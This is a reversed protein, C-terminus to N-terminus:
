EGKDIDPYITIHDVSVYLICRYNLGMKKYKKGIEWEVEGTIYVDALPFNDNIKKFLNHAKRARKDRIPKDPNLPLFVYTDTGKKSEISQLSWIPIPGFADAIFLFDKIKTRM